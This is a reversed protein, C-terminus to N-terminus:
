RTWGNRSNLEVMDEVDPLKSWDVFVDDSADVKAELLEVIRKCYMSADALGWSAAGIELKGYKQRSMGLQEAMVDQSVGLLGARIFRLSYYKAEGRVRGESNSRENETESPKPKAPDKM